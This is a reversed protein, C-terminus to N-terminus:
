VTRNRSRFLFGQVLPFRMEAAIDLDESTEIGELICLIGSERAFDLFGWVLNKYSEKTKFLRLWHKDFKIYNSYELFDFCFLHNPGGVDDLALRAGSKKLASLCFRTEEIRTSDTNEIVECVTDSGQHFISRWFSAQEENRCVHPDLNLFLKRYQPRNAIQFLKLERELRFFLDPDEHLEAFVLDPPVSTGDFRFRALAEYAYVEGTELSLIPQYETHFSKEDLVRKVKEFFPFNPDLEERPSSESFSESEASATEEILKELGLPPSRISFLKRVIEADLYSPIRMTSLDNNPPIRLMRNM